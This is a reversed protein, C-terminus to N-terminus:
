RRTPSSKLLGHLAAVILPDAPKQGVVSALRDHFKQGTMARAGLPRYWRINLPFNKSSPWVVLLPQTLVAGRGALYASLASYAMQMTKKDAYTVRTFGQRTRGGFTWYRGPRWYKSDIIRVTSGSVVVHDINASVNPLPIRLDHLVTPGQGRCHADLLGATLLEGRRGADIQAQSARDSMEGLSGGPTGFIHPSDKTAM